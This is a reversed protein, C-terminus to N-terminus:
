EVLVDVTTLRSKTFVTITRSSISPRINYEDSWYKKEAVFCFSITHNTYDLDVRESDGAYLTCYKKNDIYVHIPSGGGVFQRKRVIVFSRYDSM